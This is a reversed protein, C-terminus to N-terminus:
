RGVPPELLLVSPVRDPYGLRLLGHGIGALGTMLGPTPIGAPTGCRPGVREVTHLARAALEARRAALDLGPLSGAVTLLELNGLEGHCLSHNAPHYGAPMSALALELDALLAPDGEGGALLAARALGIGVSGHCWAHMTSGGDEAPEAGGDLVRLDPWNGLEASYRAREYALAQRGVERSREDGTVGAYRLLAWGIGAAGHSFGTLPEIADMATHWAVGCEQPEAREVLKDM